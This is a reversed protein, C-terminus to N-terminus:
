FCIEGPVAFERLNELIQHLTTMRIGDFFLQQFINSVTAAVELSTGPYNVLFRLLTFNLWNDNHMLCSVKTALPLDLLPSQPGM